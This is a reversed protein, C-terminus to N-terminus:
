RAHLSNKIANKIAAIGVGRIFLQLIFKNLLVHMSYFFFPQTKAICKEMYKKQQQFHIIKSAFM